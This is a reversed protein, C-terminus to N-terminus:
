PVVGKSYFWYTVNGTDVVPDYRRVVGDDLHVDYNSGAAATAIFARSVWEPHPLVGSYWYRTAKNDLTESWRFTAFGNDSYLSYTTNPDRVEPMRRPPM